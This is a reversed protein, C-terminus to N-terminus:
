NIVKLSGQRQKFFQQKSYEEIVIGPFYYFAIQQFNFGSKAMKMAGEQCLGVGHGFGRGTIVVDENEPYCSFFTSKLNFHERLDRLPIGFIPNIYFALRQTQQFTFMRKAITSDSIPFNYKSVLFDRWDEQSVRKEWNAQKTYICFTDKFTELYNIRENWVDQPESTQGGCNAHFYADILKGNEDLMVLDHTKVVASDIIPTYILMNHYAQCHVRDCLDFGEKKHKGLYKLAYTRSMLAQVKYYEIQRGGGGESEVVGALYTDMDVLNVISLNKERVTIEFDGEYKRLKLLPSKVNLTLSTKLNNQILFVTEFDGIDTAGKKLHVKGNEISLDIFENPLIAGFDLSDAFISYSGNNYSFSIKKTAYERFLGIRLQQAFSNSLFFVILVTFIFRV